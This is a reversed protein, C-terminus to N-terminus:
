IGTPILYQSRVFEEMSKLIVVPVFGLILSICLEYGAGFFLPVFEFSIAGLGFGIACALSITLELSKTLLERVNERTNSRFERTIKPLM